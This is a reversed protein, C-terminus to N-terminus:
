ENVLVTSNLHLPVLQWSPPVLKLTVGGRGEPPIIRVQISGGPGGM